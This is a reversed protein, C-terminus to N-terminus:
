SLMVQGGTVPIAQGTEYAQEVCYVIARAVDEPMCGRGMPVLSEYYKKVDAISKAGPVKGADLYQKFLGTKEDSWLPGEFYNGPCVANVKIRDAVLEKAFSQTLGIAGFKGGAYAGNRNSGELGSKSNVQVIDMLSGRGDANQAAMVASAHKVCLFYGTYNVRTVFDFDSLAMTKVSGARLVGANSVFLDIGGCTAVIQGMMAAVSKENSVDVQVAFSTFSGQRACIGAAVAQAGALNMDAVVVTAGEAALTEAIGQGFGQAGGTVVALKGELRGKKRALSIAKRYSELEWNEVFLRTRKDLYRPGGFAKSLQVVMAGDKAMIMATM